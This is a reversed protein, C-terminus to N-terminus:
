KAQLRQRWEAAKEPKEWMQYLQVIREGSESLVRRDQVPVSAQRQNLGGYGSILLLEADTYRRQGELSGGLMSQCNYREWSEPMVREYEKLAARLTLESEVYKHERLQVRGLGHWSSLTELHDDGLVRRQVKLAGAFLAEAEAYKGEDSYLAALRNMGALRDPHEQGLVRTQMEVAKVMLPEAKSYEREYHYLTALSLMSTFTFPHKDGLVRLKATM